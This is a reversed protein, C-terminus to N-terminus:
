RALVDRPTHAFIKGNRIPWLEAETKEEISRRLRGGAGDAVGRCAGSM